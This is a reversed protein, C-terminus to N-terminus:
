VNSVDTVRMKGMLPVGTDVEYEVYKETENIITGNKRVFEMFVEDRKSVEGSFAKAKPGYSKPGYGAESSTIDRIKPKRPKM